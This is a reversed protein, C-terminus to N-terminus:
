NIITSEIVGVGHGTELVFNGATLVRLAAEGMVDLEEVTEAVRM